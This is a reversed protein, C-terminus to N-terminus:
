LSCSDAPPPVPGYVKATSVPVGGPIVKLLEPRSEPRGVVDPGYENVTVALSLSPMVPIWGEGRRDGRVERAAGGHTGKRTRGLSRAVADAGTSPPRPRRRESQGVPHPCRGRTRKGVLVGLDDVQRARGNAVADGNSVAAITALENQGERITRPGCTLRRKGDPRGGIGSHLDILNYAHGVIGQEAM